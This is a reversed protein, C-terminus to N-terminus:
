GIDLATILLHPEGDTPVINAQMGADIIGEDKGGGAAARLASIAAVIKYTKLGYAPVVMRQQYLLARVAGAHYAQVPAAHLKM